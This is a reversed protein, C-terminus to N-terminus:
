QPQNDLIRDGIIIFVYHCFIQLTRVTWASILLGSDSREEIRDDETQSVLSLEVRIKKQYETGKTSSSDVFDTKSSSFKKIISRWQKLDGSSAQKYN